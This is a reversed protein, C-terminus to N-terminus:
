ETEGQNRPKRTPTFGHETVIASLEACIARKRQTTSGIGDSNCLPRTLNLADYEAKTLALDPPRHIDTM